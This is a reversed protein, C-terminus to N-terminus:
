GAMAPLDAAHPGWCAVDIELPQAAKKGLRSEQAVRTEEMIRVEGM